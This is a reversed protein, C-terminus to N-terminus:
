SFLPNDSRRNSGYLASAPAPCPMLLDWLTDGWRGWDLSESCLQECTLSPSKELTTSQIYGLYQYFLSVPSFVLSSSINLCLM